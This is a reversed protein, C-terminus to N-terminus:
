PAAVRRLIMLMQNGNDDSVFTTPRAQQRVPQGNVIRVSGSVYCFKITDGEISLIGTMTPVNTGDRLLDLWIPKKTPDIKMNYVTSVRTEGRLNRVYSWRTGEIRIQTTSRFAAAGGRVVGLRAAAAARQEDQAYSMEWTGQLKKLQESPDPTKPARYKPVPASTLLPAFGLIALCSLLLRLSM